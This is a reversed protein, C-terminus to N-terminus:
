DSVSEFMYSLGWMVFGAIELVTLPNRDNCVLMGPLTLVAFNSYAQLFIEYQMQLQGFKKGPNEEEYKVRAYQYRQIETDTKWIKKVFIIMTAGLTMRLGQFLYCFTIMEAKYSVRPKDSMSMVYNYTGMAVLGLPWALDVWWQVGTQYSPIHAALTFIAMQLGIHYLVYNDPNIVTPQVIFMLVALVSANFLVVALM